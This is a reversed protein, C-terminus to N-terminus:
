KIALINIVSRLACNVNKNSGFLVLWRQRTVRCLLNWKWQSRYSESDKVSLWIFIYPYLLFSYLFGILDPWLNMYDLMKREVIALWTDGPDECTYNRSTAAWDHSDECSNTNQPKNVRSLPNWTAIIAWLWQWVVSLGCLTGNNEGNM